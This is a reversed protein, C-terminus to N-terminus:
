SVVQLLGTSVMFFLNSLVGLRIKGGGLFFYKLIFFGGLPLGVLRDLDLLLSSPSVPSSQFFKSISLRGTPFGNRGVALIEGCM